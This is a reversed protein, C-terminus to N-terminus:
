RWQKGLVTIRSIEQMFDRSALAATFAKGFRQEIEFTIHEADWIQKQKEPDLEVDVFTGAQAIQQNGSGSGDSRAAPEGFQHDSKDNGPRAIWM